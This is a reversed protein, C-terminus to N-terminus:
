EHVGAAACAARALAGTDTEVGRAFSMVANLHGNMDSTHVEGHGAKCDAYPVQLKILDTGKSIKLYRQIVVVVTKEGEPNKVYAVPGEQIKYTANGDARTPVQKWGQDRGSAVLPFFAFMFCAFIKFM